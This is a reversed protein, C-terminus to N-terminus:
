GVSPDAIALQARPDSPVSAPGLRMRTLPRVPTFGFRKALANALPNDDPVDWFVSRPSAIDLLSSILSRAGATDACVLPGIYDAQTGLRLMGYGLIPGQAPWVLTAPSDQALRRLICSRSVGFAQSDLKEVATWDSEVLERTNPPNCETTPAVQHRTLGWEALFGLKEYVPRGLPTADLRICEIRLSQLYALARQMLQTGVGHRRHNPHVLMMGIWALERGYTITTVTGILEGNEVAVFCGEPEVELLRVWGQSTQNWGALRRLEDAAALHRETMLVTEM